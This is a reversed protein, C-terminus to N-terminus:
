FDIENFYPYFEKPIGKYPIFMERIKLATAIITMILIALFEVFLKFDAQSFAAISFLLLLCLACVLILATSVNELISSKARNYLHVRKLKIENFKMKICVDKNFSGTHIIDIVYGQNFGIEEDFTICLEGDNVEPHLHFFEAGITHRVKYDLIKGEKCEISPKVHGYDQKNLRIKGANWFAFTTISLQDVDDNEYKVSM